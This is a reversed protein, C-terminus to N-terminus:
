ASLSPAISLRGFCLSHLLVCAQDWIPLIVLTALGVFELTLITVVDVVTSVCNVKLQGAVRSWWEGLQKECKAVEIKNIKTSHISVQDDSPWHFFGHKTPQSSVRM